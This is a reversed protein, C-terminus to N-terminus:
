NSTKNGLTPDSFRCSGKSRTTKNFMEQVEITLKMIQDFTNLPETLNQGWRRLFQKESHSPLQAIPDILAGTERLNAIM